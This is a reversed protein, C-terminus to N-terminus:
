QRESFGLQVIKTYLVDNKDRRFCFAYNNLFSSIVNGYGFIQPSESLDESCINWRFSRNPAASKICQMKARYYLFYINWNM